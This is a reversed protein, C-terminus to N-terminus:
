SIPTIKVQPMYIILHLMKIMLSRIHSAALPSGSQNSFGFIDLGIGLRYSVICIFSLSPLNSVTIQRIIQLVAQSHRLGISIFAHRAYLAHM